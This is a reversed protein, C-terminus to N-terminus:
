KVEGEKEKSPYRLTLDTLLLTLLSITKKPEHCSLRSNRGPFTRIPDNQEEKINSYATHIM